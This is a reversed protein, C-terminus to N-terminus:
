WVAYTQDSGSVTATDAFSPATDSVPTAQKCGASMLVVALAGVLMLLMLRNSKLRPKSRSMTVERSLHLQPHM